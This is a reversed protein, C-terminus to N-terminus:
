NAGECLGAQMERRRLEERIRERESESVEPSPELGMQLAETTMYSLLMREWRLTRDDPDHMWNAINRARQPSLSHRDDTVLANLAESASGLQAWWDIAKDLAEKEEFALLLVTALEDAADENDWLPLGWQYLLSHAVEHMFVFLEAESVGLSNLAEYLEYCMTITPSSYANAEGCLTVQIDFDPFDFLSKLARYRGEYISALESSEDTPVSSTALAIVAVSRPASRARRNDLILYQIGATDVFGTIEGSGEVRQAIGAVAEYPLGAEIARFGEEDVLAVDLSRNSGSVGVRVAVTEGQTVDLPYALYTGAPVETLENVLTSVSDVHVTGSGASGAVAAAMVLKAFLTSM